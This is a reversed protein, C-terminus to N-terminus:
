VWDISQCIQRSLSMYVSIKYTQWYTMTVPSVLSCLLQVVRNHVCVSVHADQCEMCAVACDNGCTTVVAVRIVSLTVAHVCFAVFGAVCGCSKTLVPPEALASVAASQKFLIQDAFCNLLYFYTLFYLYSFFLYTLFLSFYFLLFLFFLYPFILLYSFLFLFFQGRSKQDYARM